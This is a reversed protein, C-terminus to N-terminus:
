RVCYKQKWLLYKDLVNKQIQFRIGLKDSIKLQM